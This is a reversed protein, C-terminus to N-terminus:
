DIDIIGEFDEDITSYIKNKLKRNDNLERYKKPLEKYGGDADIQKLVSLIDPAKHEKQNDDWVSVTKCLYGIAHMDEINLSKKTGGYWHTIPVIFFMPENNSDTLSVLVLGCKGLKEMRILQAKQHHSIASKNISKRQRSKAEIMGGELWSFTKTSVFFTFDCPSVGTTFATLRGGRGRAKQMADHNRYLEMEFNDDEVLQQGYAEVAKELTIGNRHAKRGAKKMNERNAPLSSRTVHNLGMQTKRAM